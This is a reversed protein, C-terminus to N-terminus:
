FFKIKRLIKKVVKKVQKGLDQKLYKKATKEFGNDVIDRMFMERNQPVAVSKVMASNYKIAEDLDAEIYKINKGISKFLEEGKSSNVVVISTGKGDYMEPKVNKVGWFDALTIDSQRIRNKFYCNYCSPRLSLNAMFSRIYLDESLMKKYVKGNLFDIKISFNEWGRSKERMNVSSVDTQQVGVQEKLYKDLVLPSPVGHCIIDVTFLNEYEKGLYSYLGGIQCPTGSFLVKEGTELLRKVNIYTDGIWSQVYKSGRLKNLENVNEVLIHKVNFKEDYSAGFVKGGSQLISQALESFIGGSSSKKRIDDNNTFAAYANVKKDNNIKDKKLPCVKECAGCKICKNNDIEPYWFGEKNNKMEICNKPCISACASCGNCNNMPLIPRQEKIFERAKDLNSILFQTSSSKCDYFNDLSNDYDIDSISKIYELCEKDDSDCFHDSFGFMKSLTYIRSQMSKAGSRQFVFLQKKYISSFVSAHFSDTFVVRAYKILSIFDAPSIDFLREDGFNKDCKRYKGALYPLTVVKLGYEKAYETALRRQNVSDGLFYCFLYDGEVKRTTVIEDWEKDSLLLTPDLVLEPTVDCIKDILQIADEERVSVDNYKKLAKEYTAKQMDNLSNTAISAAYSFRYKNDDVFSLLYAPCAVFPHWVQDSGTIFVDYDDNANSITNERYVINSHPIANKNFVSIANNRTKIKVYEDKNLIRLIKENIGRILFGCAKRAIKSLSTKKNKIRDYSVQEVDYGLNKIVRCIAYAQLNGGYNISNYYHTLIGIKM